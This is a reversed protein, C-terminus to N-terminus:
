LETEETAKRETRKKAPTVVEFGGKRLLAAALDSDVEYTENREYKTGGISVGDGQGPGNGLYRLREKKM